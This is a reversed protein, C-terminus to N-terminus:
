METEEVPLCKDNPTIISSAPLGVPASGAFRQPGMDARVRVFLWEACAPLQQQPRLLVPPQRLLDSRRQTVVLSASMGRTSRLLVAPHEAQAPSGVPRPARPWLSLPAPLSVSPLGWHCSCGLSPSKCCQPLTIQLSFPRLVFSSLLFM